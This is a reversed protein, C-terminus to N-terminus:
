FVFGEPITAEKVVIIIGERVHFRGEPDDYEQVDQRNVLQSYRGISANKDIICRKLYAGENIGMFNAPDDGYQYFDAGMVLSEEIVAGHRVRTRSGLISDRVTAGEVITGDCLLAAEVSARNLKAGPLYRTNSYIPQTPDFLNFKPIPAVLDLNADYFARITGIDAWYGDFCYAQVKHTAIAGPIIEKGFDTQDLNDVLMSRLIQPDFIYIGMSALYPRRAAEEPSLGFISTDTAMEDLAEVTKPKEVFKTIRGNEDVKLVGLEPADERTVPIVAISVDAGSRIHTDRFMRYNMRYLHDGSLILVLGVSNRKYGLHPLTKRVADATGQFWENSEATQEAALVQVFGRSFQDFRYANSIHNNLSASQYMTLVYMQTIGSNICNSIPIDILRYKGAISVAPKSREKTLPFLRSGRGGGLIVAVMNEM